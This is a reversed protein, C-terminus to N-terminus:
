QSLLTIWEPSVLIEAGSEALAECVDEHWADECIPNGIRVGNLATLGQWDTGEDFLREKMLYM